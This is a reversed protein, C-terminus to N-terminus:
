KYNVKEELTMINERDQLKIVNTTTERKESNMILMAYKEISLEMEIDQNYIRITHILAELEKEIKVFIKINEMSM